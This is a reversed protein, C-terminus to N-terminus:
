LVPGRERIATEDIKKLIDDTIQIQDYKEAILDNLVVNNVSKVVTELARAGTNLKYARNVIKDIIDDDFLIDTHYNKKASNVFRILPSAESNLLIDKLKEKSFSNTCTILSFRGVLERKLGEKIYDEPVIKYKNDKDSLESEKRERLDTFAGMCIFTIKSTDFEIHKGDYDIPIKCGGLYTLLEDQVARKMELGNNDKICLKDFEDLVIIGRQATKLDGKAARLLDVLIDSLNAGQYGPASFMSVSRNVMPINMQEAVEKTLFTKGTGTPGDILICAKSGSYDENDNEFLLQNNYINNVVGNVVNDQGLIKKRISASIELPNIDSINFGLEYDNDEESNNNKSDSKTDLSSEKVPFKFELKTISNHTSSNLNVINNCISEIYSKINETIQSQNMDNDDYSSILKEMLEDSLVLCAYKKDLPGMIISTDAMDRLNSFKSEDLVIKKCNDWIEKSSNELDVGVLSFTGDDKKELVIAIKENM